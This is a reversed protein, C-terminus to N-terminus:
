QNRSTRFVPKSLTVGYYEEFADLRKKGIMPIRKIEDVTIPNDKFWGAIRRGTMFILGGPYDGADFRKEMMDLLENGTM